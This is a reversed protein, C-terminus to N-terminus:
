TSRTKGLLRPLMSTPVSAPQRLRKAPYSSMSMRSLTAASPSSMSPLVSGASTSFVSRLLPNLQHSLIAVTTPRVKSDPVGRNYRSKPYPKNKCYRYCRAPRRGMIVLHAFTTLFRRADDELLFPLGGEALPIKAQFVGRTCPLLM